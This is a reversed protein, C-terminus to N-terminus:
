YQTLLAADIINFEGVGETENAYDDKAKEHYDEYGVYAAKTSFAMCQLM